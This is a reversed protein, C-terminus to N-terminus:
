SPPYLSPPLRLPSCLLIDHTCACGLSAFCCMKAFAVREALPGMCESGPVEYSSFEDAILNVSFRKYEINSNWDGGPGIYLCVTTLEGRRVRYTSERNNPDVCDYSAIKDQALALPVAAWCLLLLAALLLPSPAAAM